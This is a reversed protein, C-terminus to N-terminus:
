TPEEGDYVLHLIRHNSHDSVVVENRSLLQAWRPQNLSTLPSGPLKSLEWFLNGDRDAAFVRNNGSDVVILTGDDSIEAYRPRNLRVRHSGSVLFRLERAVHGAADVWVIRSNGSDCILLQGDDLPQVSHPDDLHTPADPGILREVCGSWSAEVVVDSASDAVLLRGNPLARVDHPDRLQPCDSSDLRRLENVIDGSRSLEVIRSNRGDAIVISGSPTWRACRPWFLGSPKGAQWTERPGAPGGAIEVVRDNATDAVLMREGHVQISRPYSLSRRRALTRGWQRLPRAQADLEVVRRNASDCVMFGGDRSRSAFAPMRLDVDAPEIRRVCHDGEVVLVRHNGCDAILRRGGPLPRVSKPASLRRDDNAPNKSEGFGWLTRGDRGIELVVHAFDDAVLFTDAESVCVSSPNGIRAGTAPLHWLLRGNTDLEVIEVNWVADAFAVVLTGQPTWHVLRPMWQSLSCLDIRRDVQGAADLILLEWTTRRLLAIRGDGMPCGYGDDIGLANSDFLIRAHDDVVLTRCEIRVTRNKELGLEDVILHRDHGAPEILVPHQLELSGRERSSQEYEIGIERLVSWASSVPEDSAPEGFPGRLVDLASRSTV